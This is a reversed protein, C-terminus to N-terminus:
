KRKKGTPAPDPSRLIRLTIGQQVISCLNSALWYLNLGAPAWLFMGMLMLPMIMMVRQQAPDMTSPTMRQMLFMSAGMLVPTLFLPDKQSLDAIWLFPAGRLQISVSLVRYFAILFPMTLLIPLCGVLMQSGMNMGHKAYLAAMEEQMEQRKPDMLPVKRYREQIVKMEPSIKAMKMGNAISYHRFPAMALNILVTLAVISWGYNGIHGHVWQLLGMLLVVIGGIWDGVPVVRALEHGARAMEHYDKPGVYLLAPESGPGLDVSVVPALNPKGDEHVPLAEPRISVGGREGPPVFLAAFYHGEVGGWRVAGLTQGGPPLKATPFREVGGAGLAVGQPPQYGQVEREAASPNGVGPGWLVKVPLPQGGKKVSASVQVLYGRASVTLRKQVAVDGEAFDFELPSPGANGVVLSETNPKFLAERLRADLAPDGTELDFPRPGTPASQVIEEPGGRSDTFQLLRWSLLRAGRNTFAATVDHNTVEVRREQDDAVERVAASAAPAPAVAPSPPPAHGSDRVPAGATESTAAAEPLTTPAGVPLPKRTPPFLVSYGTLLLLTLAVAILLRREEM